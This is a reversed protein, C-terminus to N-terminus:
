PDRKPPSNKPPLDQSPKRHDELIWNQIDYLHAIEKTLKKAKKANANKMEAKAKVLKDHIKNYAEIQYENLMYTSNGIQVEKLKTLKNKHPRGVKYKYLTGIASLTASGAISITLYSPLLVATTLAALSTTAGSAIYTIARANPDRSFKKTALKKLSKM